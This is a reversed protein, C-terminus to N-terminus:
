TVLPQVALAMTIAFFSLGGILFRIGVDRLDARFRRLRIGRM